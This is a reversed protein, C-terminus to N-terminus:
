MRDPDLTKAPHMIVGTLVLMLNTLLEDAAQRMTGAM